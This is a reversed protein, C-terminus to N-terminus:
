KANHVNESYADINTAQTACTRTISNLLFIRVNGEGTHLSSGDTSDTFECRSVPETLKIPLRGINNQYFQLVVFLYFESGVSVFSLKLHFM